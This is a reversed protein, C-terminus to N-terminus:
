GIEVLAYAALGGRINFSFTGLVTDLDEIVETEGGPYVAVVVYRKNANAGPIGVSARASVTNPLQAFKGGDLIGLDVNIAGVVKGGLQAVVADISAFAAPSTKATIDYARVWPTQGAKLGALTRFDALSTRIAFGNLRKVRYSGAFTSVVGAVTNTPAEVAAAAEQRGASAAAVVTTEEQTSTPEDTTAGAVVPVVMMSAALTIALIRKAFKISM